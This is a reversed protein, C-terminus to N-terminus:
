QMRAHRPGVSGSAALLRHLREATRKRQRTVQTYTFRVVRYGALMLIQDRDRDNEFARPMGHYTFGDTEAILDTGPWYFDVLLGAIRVNAVPAPLGYDDCLQLMAVELRSRTDTTEGGALRSLLLRLARTGHQRPHDALVQHVGILDFLGLRDAQAIADELARERLTPAIDLLTRAATTIPIADVVSVEHPRLTGVRHLRIRSRDPDRGSRSPTMVHILAGRTAGMGWLAAADGHSLVARRGCALVAASWRGERSLRSHGVSFVGRHVRLLRGVAVRHDIMDDTLGLAHLQRREVVGHQDTALEGVRRDPDTYGSM